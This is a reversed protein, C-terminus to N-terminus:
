GPLLGMEDFHKVLLDGHRNWWDRIDRFEQIQAKGEANIQVVPWPGILANDVGWLEEGFWEGTGFAHPATKDAKMAELVEMPEVSGAKEAGAKWLDM